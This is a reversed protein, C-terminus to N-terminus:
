TRSSRGWTRCAKDVKASLWAWRWLRIPLTAKGDNIWLNNVGADNTVFIDPHGDGNIDCAVASMGRGTPEWLGAEKTV